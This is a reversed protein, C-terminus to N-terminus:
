RSVRTITRRREALNLAIDRWVEARQEAPLRALIADLKIVGEPLEKAITDAKIVKPPNANM